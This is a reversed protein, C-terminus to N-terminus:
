CRAPSLPEALARRYAAETGLTAGLQQLSELETADFRGALAAQVRARAAVEVPEEADVGAAAAAASGYGLLQAADTLREELQALLAATAAYRSGLQYRVILPAARVLAERAAPLEGRLLLATALSGRCFALFIGRTPQAELKDATERLTTEALALDGTSLAIGAMTWALVSEWQTAGCSALVARAEAYLRSAEAYRRAGMAYRASASLYQARVRAPAQPDYLRRMEDLVAAQQADPTTTGPILLLLSMGLTAHDDTQRLLDAARQAAARGRQQQSWILMWGQAYWLRGAALAPTHEDLLALAAECYRAGEPQLSLVERWLPCAHGALEIALAADNALAWDLAARLNPLEPGYRQLLQADSLRWYDKAARAILQGIARAHREQLSATEGAAALCELAYARGTELLRLRPPEGAEAILLSKDVLAGLHALVAWRDLGADAALAQAAEASFSGAFVGLRRFVAQEDASLLGHSFDMMARLTQHRALTQRAGGSLLEFREGLQALLGELGLVPVRAAALELALAIGDLRRCIAALPAATDANLAFAPQLAQIRHTLLQVAGSAQAAALGPREPLALTDLRLLQEGAIKLPEQSTLLVHVQPAEAHLTAVLAAVAPLLHECNDLLLLVRQPRLLDLLLPLASEQAGLLQLGLTRALEPVVLEARNLSALELCWVGDPFEDTLGAAVARALQTKGVGGAAVVSVIRQRLLQARLRASDAERGYLTPLQAPLNGRTAPTPAPMAPPADSADLPRQTLQYGRGPITTIAQAGLLKRLGSIQVQINNEEVAQGTWVRDLLEAKSVVRGHEQVLVLLLDFARAGVAAPQGGILLQRQSEQVEFTEFRYRLVHSELSPRLM